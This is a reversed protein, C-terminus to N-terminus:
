SRTGTNKREQNIGEQIGLKWILEKQIRCQVNPTSRQVNESIHRKSDDGGITSVIADVSPDELAATLDAARAEPHAWLELPDMRTTPYEKVKVGFRLELLRVGNEYIAPFAAPGGWSLSLAAVVDGKKLRPPREPTM